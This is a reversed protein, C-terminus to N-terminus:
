IESIIIEALVQRLVQLERSSRGLGELALAKQLVDLQRKLAPSQISATASADSARAMKARAFAEFERFAQDQNHAMEYALAEPAAAHKRLWDSAFETFIGRQALSKELEGLKRPAVREDPTIGGGGKVARGNATVFTQQSAEDVRRPREQKYEEGSGGFREGFEDEVEADSSDAGAGGAAGKGGYAVAQICRGSPTYYKAVTLKLSGGGPLLQVTQVLGKGFTREGTVVGRDTDQVVGTVVEAASATNRNVLVVLRTAPDLLPPKSSKYTLANGDGYARGSTSVIETGQPVLQQSVAVAAELLGGPNDRLDLVLAKLRPGGPRPGMGGQLRTISNQVEQATGSSFGELKIYGVGGDFLSTLAVDPLRVLKRAVTVDMTGGGKASGGAATGRAADTRPDGDRQLTLRVATGPEGRLLDKTEDVTPINKLPRGDIALIRDGPRVGADFAYGELAGLVLVADDDDKAKGITLGVGGYRGTTRVAVDETGSKGEFTSYPDLLSLMSNMGASFLTDLDAGEQIYDDRVNELIIGLDVGRVLSPDTVFDHIAATASSLALLVALSFGAAVQGPRFNERM